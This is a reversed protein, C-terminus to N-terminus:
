YFASCPLGMYLVSGNSRVPSGKAMYQTCYGCVIGM